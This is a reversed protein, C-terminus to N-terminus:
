QIHFGVPIRGTVGTAEPATCHLNKVTQLAQEDLDDYGTSKVLRAAIVQGQGNISVEALAEGEEHLHRASVPYHAEPASCSLQFGGKQGAAAASAPTAAQTGPTSMDTRTRAHATTKEVGRHAADVMSKTSAHPQREPQVAPAALVLKKPVASAPPLHEVEPSVSPPPVEAEEQTLVQADMDPMEKMPQAPLLQAPQSPTIQGAEPLPTSPAEFLMSVAAPRQTGTQPSITMMLWVTMALHAAIALGFAVFWVLRGQRSLGLALGHPRVVGALLGEFAPLVPTSAEGAPEQRDTHWRSM